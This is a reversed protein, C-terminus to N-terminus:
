AVPGWVTQIAELGKRLAVRAQAIDLDRDGLVVLFGVPSAGVLMSGDPGAFLGRAFASPGLRGAGLEIERGLTAAMAGLPEVAMAPELHSAIALGDPAVVMTGRVGPVSGLDRLVQRFVQARSSGAPTTEPGPASVRAPPEPTM